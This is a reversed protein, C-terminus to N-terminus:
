RLRKQAITIHFQHHNLHPALGYSERLKELEPSHVQLVVYENRRTRVRDIHKIKFSFKQGLEQIEGIDRAEYEYFVSIHAGISPQRYFVAPKHFGEGKLFPFLKNVYDNDVKLYVYGDKAQELRGVQTLNELAYEVIVADSSPPAGKETVQCAAALWVLFLCVLSCKWVRFQIM